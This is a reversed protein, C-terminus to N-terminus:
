EDEGTARQQRQIFSRAFNRTFPTVEGSEDDDDEDLQAKTTFGGSRIERIIEKAFQEFLQEMGARNVGPRDVYDVTEGSCKIVADVVIQKFNWGKEELDAVTKLVRKDLDSTEPNFRASKIVAKSTKPRSM